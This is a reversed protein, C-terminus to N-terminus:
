PYNTLKRDLVVWLWAGTWRVGEHQELHAATLLNESQLRLIKEEDEILELMPRCESKAYSLADLIEGRRDEFEAPTDTTNHLTQHIEVAFDAMNTPKLLALKAAMLQAEDYLENSSLFDILPFMFHLDMFPALKNTLDYKADPAATSAAAAEHEDQATMGRARDDDLSAEPPPPLGSASGASQTQNPSHTSLAKPCYTRKQPTFHSYHLQQVDLACKLPWKAENESSPVM